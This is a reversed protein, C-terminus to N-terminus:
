IEQVPSDLTRLGSHQVSLLLCKGSAAPQVGALSYLQHREQFIVGSSCGWSGTVLLVKHWSWVVELSTTWAVKVWGIISSDLICRRSLLIAISCYYYPVSGFAKSLDFSIIEAEEEKDVDGWLFCHTQCPRGKIFGYQNNGSVKKKTM